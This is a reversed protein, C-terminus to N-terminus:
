SIRQVVVRLLFPVTAMCFDGDRCRLWAMSIERLSISLAEALFYASYDKFYIGLVVDCIQLFGSFSGQMGDHGHLSAM